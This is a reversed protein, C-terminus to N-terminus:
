AVSARGPWYGKGRVPVHAEGWNVLRRTAAMARNLPIGLAQAIRADSIGPTARIAALVDGATTTRTHHTM